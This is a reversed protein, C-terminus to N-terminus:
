RILVPAGRPVRPFLDVVDSVHMRICGHSASKGISFSAATGHIGIGDGLGIFRAKLPNDPSGPPVTRGALSGAWPRNPATWSPNVERTLVHRVGTPTEFGAAGVAIPYSRDFRLRRFVRLRHGGRDITLITRNARRLDILRVAPRVRRLRPRVGRHLTPDVVRRRLARDLRRPDIRRGYVAKRGRVRRITIRISANRARHSTVRAARRVFASLSAARYGVVPAVKRGRKAKLARRATSREHFRLRLRGTTLMFTRRGIAVRLPRQARPQAVGRLKAAAEPVTLGGLSVGVSTVGAAIRPAPAPAPPAIPAPVQAPAAGPGGLCCALLVLGVVTRM